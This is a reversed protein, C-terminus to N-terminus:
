HCLPELNQAKKKRKQFIEVTFGGAIISAILVVIFTGFGSM